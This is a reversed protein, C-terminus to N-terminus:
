KINEWILFVVAYLVHCYLKLSHRVFAAYFAFNHVRYLGIESVIHLTMIFPLPKQKFSQITMDTLCHFLYIM